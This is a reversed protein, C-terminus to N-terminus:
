MIINKIIKTSINKNHRKIAICTKNAFGEELIYRTPTDKTLCKMLGKVINSVIGAMSNTSIGKFHM